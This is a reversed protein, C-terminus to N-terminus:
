LATGFIPYHFGRSNRTRTLPLNNIHEVFDANIGLRLRVVTDSNASYLLRFFSRSRGKKM